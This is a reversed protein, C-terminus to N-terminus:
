AHAEDIAQVATPQNTLPTVNASCHFPMLQVISGLGVGGPALSDGVSASESTVHVDADSQVATPCYVCRAWPLTGSASRQFPTLQDISCIGRGLPAFSPSNSPMDHADIVTQM